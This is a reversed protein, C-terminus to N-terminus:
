IQFCINQNMTKPTMYKQIHEYIIWVNEYISMFSLIPHFKRNPYVDQKILGYITWYQIIYALIDDYIGM